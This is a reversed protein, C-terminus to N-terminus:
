VCCFALCVLKLIFYHFLLHIIITNRCLKTSFDKSQCQVFYNKYCALTSIEWRPTSYFWGEDRTETSNTAQIGVEFKYKDLKISQSEANYTVMEAFGWRTRMLM